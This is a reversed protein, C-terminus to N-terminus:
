AKRVWSAASYRGLAEPLAEPVHITFGEHYDGSWDVDGELYSRIAPSNSASAHRSAPNRNSTTSPCKPRRRRDAATPIRAAAAVRDGPEGRGRIGPASLRLERRRSRLRRPPLTGHCRPQRQPGVPLDVRVTKLEGVPTEVRHTQTKIIFQTFGFNPHAGAKDFFLDPTAISCPEGVPEDNCTGAQWGSDVAPHTPDSPAIIDGTDALASPAATCSSAYASRGSGSLVASDQM